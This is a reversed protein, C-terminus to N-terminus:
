EIIGSDKILINKIPTDENDTDVTSLYDIFKMGQIIKGFVVHKSNLHHNDSLNIFFQSGNTNPGTNAM